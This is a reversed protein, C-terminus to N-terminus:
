QSKEGEEKKANKKEESWRYVYVVGFILFGSFGLAIIFYYSQFFSTVVGVQPVVNIVKGKFNRYEVPLDSIDNNDGKTVFYRYENSQYKDIVRHCILGANSYYIIVDGVKVDDYSCQYTIVVDNVQLQGIEYGETTHNKDYSMSETLIVNSRFGFLPFNYKSARDILNVATVLFLLGLVAWGVISIIRLVVRKTKKPETAAKESM